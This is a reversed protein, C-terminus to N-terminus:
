MNRVGLLHCLLLNELPWLVDLIDLLLVQCPGMLRRTNKDRCKWRTYIRSKRKKGM